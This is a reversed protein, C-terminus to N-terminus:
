ANVDCVVVAQTQSMLAVAAESWDAPVAAATDEQHRRFTLGEFCLDQQDYM